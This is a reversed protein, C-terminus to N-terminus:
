MKTKGACLIRYSKNCEMDRIRVPRSSAVIRFCKEECEDILLQSPQVPLTLVESNGETWKLEPLVKKFIDYVKCKEAKNFLFNSKKRLGIWADTM